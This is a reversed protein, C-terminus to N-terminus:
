NRINNKFFFVVAESTTLKIVRHKVCACSTLSLFIWKFIAWEHHEVVSVNRLLSCSPLSVFTIHMIALHVINEQVGSWKELQNINTQVIEIRELTKNHTSEECHHSMTRIWLPCIPKRSCFMETVVVLKWHNKCIFLLHKELICHLLQWRWGNTETMLQQWTCNIKWVGWSM